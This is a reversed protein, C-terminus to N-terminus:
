FQWRKIHTGPMQSYEKIAKQWSKFKTGFFMYFDIYVTYIKNHANINIHAAKGGYLEVDRVYRWEIDVHDLRVTKKGYEIVRVRDLGIGNETLTICDDRHRFADYAWWLLIVSVVVCLISPGLLLWFSVILAGAAAVNVWCFPRTRYVLPELHERTPKEKQTKKM